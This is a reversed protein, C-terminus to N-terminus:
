LSRLETSYVKVTGLYEGEITILKVGESSTQSITTSLVRFRKEWREIAETIEEYFEIDSAVKGILKFLNSGYERNMCRSGKPTTLIDDISQKVHEWDSILKGTHRDMGSMAKARQHHQPKQVTMVM